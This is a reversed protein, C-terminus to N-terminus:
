LPLHGCMHGGGRRVCGGGTAQEGCTAEGRTLELPRQRRTIWQVSGALSSSGVILLSSSSLLMGLMGGVCAGPAHREGAWGGAWRSPWSGLWGAPEGQGDAEVGLRHALVPPTSSCTNLLQLLLGLVGARACLKSSSTCSSASGLAYATSAPVALGERLNRAVRAVNVAVGQQQHTRDCCAACAQLVHMAPHPNWTDDAPQRRARGSRSQQQKQPSPSTTGLQRRGCRGAGQAGTMGSRQAQLVVGRQCARKLPRWSPPSGGLPAM